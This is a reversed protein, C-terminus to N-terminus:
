EIIVNDFCMCANCFVKCVIDLFDCGFGIVRVAKNFIM